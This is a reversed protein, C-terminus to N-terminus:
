GRKPPRYRPHQKFFEADGVLLREPELWEPWTREVAAPVVAEPVAAVEVKRVRVVRKRWLVKPLDVKLMRCFPRLIPAMQVPAAAILAKTEPRGLAWYLLGRCNEDTLPVLHLLWGRFRPLATSRYCTADPSVGARAASRSRAPMVADLTGNRVREALRAFKGGLRRIRRVIQGIVTETLGYRGGVAQVLCCVFEVVMAFPEAPEFTREPDTTTTEMVKPIYVLGAVQALSIKERRM